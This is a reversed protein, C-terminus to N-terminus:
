LHNLAVSCIVELKAPFMLDLGVLDPLESSRGVDSKLKVSMEECESFFLNAISHMEEHRPMSTISIIFIASIEILVM